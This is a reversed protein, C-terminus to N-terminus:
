LSERSSSDPERSGAGSEQSRSQPKEALHLAAIGGTLNIYRVNRFGEAALLQALVLTPMPVVAGLAVRSISAGLPAGDGDTLKKPLEDWPVKLTFATVLPIEFM